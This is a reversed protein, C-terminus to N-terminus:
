KSPSKPRDKYSKTIKCLYETGLPRCVGASNDGRKVGAQECSMSVDSSARVATNKKKKELCSLSALAFLLLEFKEKKGGEIGYEAKLGSISHWPNEM